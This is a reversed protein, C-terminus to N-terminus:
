ERYYDLLRDYFDPEVLKITEISVELAEKYEGKHFLMEANNLGAHVEKVSSRFRNGYVISMEVMQATKIMETTTHYLKLILDRATDVRTNLTKIVIPKKNLEKIIEQIAENAEQLEVFYHNMIIPLKYSRIRSKCQKLLEQIEELQERARVEDDYMSGLSKLSVDLDDELITLLENRSRLELILSSYAETKESISKKMKKFDTGIQRLRESIHDLTVMDEDKLDYLSKIDEIQDYIDKIIKTTKKLRRQFDSVEEEYDKRAVKEKEFETFISDLYNLLTKLEFMCDDLNLVRVRDLINSVNKRSEEMNYPIKLYDLCYGKDDMEHYIKEIEEIRKPILKEGLLVLNPVEEVVDEMHEIMTDLAKVIHVVEDYENKDMRQEFDLFRKEINEFQLGIVDEVDEYDSPHARFQTTLKRYKAKLKTVISRYKEESLTIERIEQLLENASERAKYIEIETKALKESFGKKRKADLDMDLEIIMDNIMMIRDVRILEFRRQWSKYKEGMKENKIIPEVKSLESPVPTSAIMNKERDLESIENKIANLRHKQILVLVITVFVIAVLLFTVILLLTGDM